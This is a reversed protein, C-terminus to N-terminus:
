EVERAGVGRSHLLGARRKEEDLDRQGILKDFGEVEIEHIEAAQHTTITQHPNATPHQSLNKLIDKPRSSTSNFGRQCRDLEAQSTNSSKRTHPVTPGISLFAANLTTFYITRLAHPNATATNPHIVVSSTVALNNQDVVRSIGM